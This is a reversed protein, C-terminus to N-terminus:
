GESQWSGVTVDGSHPDQHCGGPGPPRCGRKIPDDPPRWAWFMHGDPTQGEVVYCKESSGVIAIKGPAPPPLADPGAPPLPDCPVDNAAATDVPLGPEALQAPQNCKTFDGSEARCSEVALSLAAVNDKAEADKAKTRQGVFAAYAIAALLGIVISVVLVEILTYGREERGLRRTLGRIVQVEEASAGRSQIPLIDV